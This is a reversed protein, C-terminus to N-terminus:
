SASSMLMKAEKQKAEVDEVIRANDEELSSPVGEEQADEEQDDEGPDEQEPPLGTPSADTGNQRARGFDIDKDIQEINKGIKRKELKRLFISKKKGTGGGLHLRQQRPRM